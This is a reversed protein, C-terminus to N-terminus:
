NKKVWVTYGHGYKGAQLEIIGEYKIRVEDGVDVKDMKGILQAHAPTKKEGDKTTIVWAPSLREKGDSGTFKDEVVDKVKGEIIDGAKARSTKTNWISTSNKPTYTQEVFESM